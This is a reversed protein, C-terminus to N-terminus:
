ATGPTSRPVVFVLLVVLGIPVSRVTGLAIQGLLFMLMGAALGVAVSGVGAGSNMAWFGAWFGIVVPLAYVSCPHM